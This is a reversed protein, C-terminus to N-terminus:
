EDSTRLVSARCYPCDGHSRLWQELCASHFVHKCHLRILGDADGCRELCISCEPSMSDGEGADKCGTEQIAPVLEACPTVHSCKDVNGFPEASIEQDKCAAMSASSQFYSTLSGLASDASTSIGVDAPHPLVGAWITESSSTNQQRFCHLFHTFIFQIYSLNQM